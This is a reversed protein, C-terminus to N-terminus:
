EPGCAKPCCLIEGINLSGLAKQNTRLDRMGRVGKPSREARERGEKVEQTDRSTHVVARCHQTERSFNYKNPRSENRQGRKIGEWGERKHGKGGTNKRHHTYSQEATSLRGRAKPNTQLVRM